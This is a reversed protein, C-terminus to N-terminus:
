ACMSLQLEASGLASALGAIQRVCDHLQQAMPEPILM